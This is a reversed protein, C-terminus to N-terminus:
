LFAQYVMVGLLILHDWPFDKGFGAVYREVDTAVGTGYGYGVGAVAGYLDAGVVVKVFDVGGEDHFAFFGAAVAEVDGGDAEFGALGAGDFEYFEGAVVDHVSEAAVDHAWEV